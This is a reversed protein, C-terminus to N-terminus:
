RGIDDEEASGGKREKKFVKKPPSCVSLEVYSAERKM